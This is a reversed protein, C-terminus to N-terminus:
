PQAPVLQKWANMSRRLNEEAPLKVGYGQLGIPGSYKLERLKNLFNKLDFNGEDLPRILRNWGTRAAGADAGNITVVFM